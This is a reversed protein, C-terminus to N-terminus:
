LKKRTLFKECEPHKHLFYELSDFGATEITYKPMPYRSHYWLMLLDRKLEAFWSIGKPGVDLEMIRCHVLPGNPAKEIMIAHIHNSM